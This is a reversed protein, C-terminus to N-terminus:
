KNLIFEVRRNKWNNDKDRYDVVLETGGKGATTLRGASVGKKVLRAKVFEAREKSLPILAPGWQAPNDETEEAENDTVRNAHGEITVKYDKFKNLIEAIRKLIRENNEAKDAALGGKGVEAETKFDAHDSRFIISPVAMKLVDGDRIVLVDVPIIGSVTSTMGLSDRVTFTYPYDVASQVREALGKSNKQTNSLGDWVIRGTITQRGATKWFPKGNPDSIVFSWDSIKAKTTGSLRIFLEDDVGDNDPSFYKPATNVSLAPPTATCVFPASSVNVVNGKKYVIKLTGTFVGEGPAGSTDYGDWRIEAPLNASDKDSWGRLSTGNESRIDFNWSLIGDPVTARVAFKQVKLAEEGAAPSIGEHEATVFAKTERSDLVIDNLVTRFTNGAEDECEIAVSYTGDAAKNGAEDSGDWSFGDKSDTRIKGQWSYKRVAAGNKGRVTATWLKEETCRSVAVPLDDQNGDSDPSFYTWPVSAELSPGASDVAFNQAPAAAKSGNVSEVSLSATYRGDACVIGDEAKGDWVFSKPLARTDSIRKVTKGASDTIQFTYSAIGSSDKLVPTFTLTKRASNGAPSFAAASMSLLAEAAKTDLTFAEAAPMVGQNGALDTASLAFRYRGDAALAGESDFGNWVVSDPLFSGFRFERVAKDPAGDSYIRGTWEQVPAYKKQTAPTRVMSITVSNKTGAGFISDSVRLEAAPATRDLVFEPSRIEAPVYGNLYKATVKAQYRGEPLPSGGDDKGDFVIKEPPLESQGGRYTRFAKGDAGAVVVAWETLKNGSAAAPVPIQVSLTIDAFPSETGPSFYRSGAIMINTAPKEASFIINAIGAPASVNGARDTASVSYSYVGDEVPLGSDDTGNWSFNEPASGTWRYTRVVDGAANRITGTWEDEVSGSQRVKFEAKDGEGFTRDSPQAIEVSPPVTDVIVTYDSTRGTNGNDDTATFYYYYTGDPATEGNDMAGNWTVTDPVDVGTKPTALQRFFSKFTLKTPLAVKNGITRVVAGSEDTIVLQWSKILRRDTIKLPIVLEDQVGTNTPSIYKVGNEEAVASLAFLACAALHAIYSKKM